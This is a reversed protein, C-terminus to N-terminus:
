LEDMVTMALGGLIGASGLGYEIVILGQELATPILQDLMVPALWFM